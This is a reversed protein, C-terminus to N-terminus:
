PRATSTDALLAPGSPSRPARSVRLGPLSARDLLTRLSDEVAAFGPAPEGYAVRTYPSDPYRARLIGLLSDRLGPRLAAAALVAKPAIISSPHRASVELFLRSAPRPAGLSDRVEEARRFLRVVNSPGPTLADIADAIVRTYPSLADAVGASRARLVELRNLFAPLDAVDDSARFASLTVRVMAVIAETSDPAVQAARAFRTRARARDTNVWRDGDAILLRAIQGPTLGSGDVLSDVLAAASRRDTRGLEGLVLTWRPEDFPLDRASDLAARARAVQGAVLWAEGRDFQIGPERARNLDDLAAGPRGLALAARGRLRLARSALTSDPSDVLPSVVLHASDAFGLGILCDALVLRAEARLAPDTSTEVAERLPVVASPCDDLQRLARGRILLADDRYRSDPYRVLVSEAKVAVQIWLSRAEARRGEREALQADRALQNANYLGNYFACGFAVM